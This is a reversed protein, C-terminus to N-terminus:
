DATPKDYVIKGGVITTLVETKPIDKPDIRFLDKSLVIM